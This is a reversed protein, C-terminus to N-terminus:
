FNYKVFYNTVAERIESKEFGCMKLREIRINEPTGTIAIFFQGDFDSKVFRQPPISDIVGIVRSMCNLMFDSDNRGKGGIEREVYGNTKTLNIILFNQLESSLKQREVISEFDYLKVDDIQINEGYVNHSGCFHCNSGVEEMWGDLTKSFEYETLDMYHDVSGNVMIMGTMGNIKTCDCCCTNYSVSPM